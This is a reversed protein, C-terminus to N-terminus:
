TKANKSSYWECECEWSMIQENQNWKKKREGKEVNIIKIINTTTTAIKLPACPCVSQIM